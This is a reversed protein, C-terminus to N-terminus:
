LKILHFSLSCVQKSSFEIFCYGQTKQTDQNLPMWLGREKITGIQGFIKRIVGELKEFKDLGVVPLNDVVIVNEFGSDFDLNESEIVDEDDSIIGFNEGPPLQISDLDVRSVDIQSPDIVLHATAAPPEMPGGLSHPGNSLVDTAM